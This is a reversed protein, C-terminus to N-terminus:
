PVAPALSPRCPLPAVSSPPRFFFDFTLLDLTSLRTRRPQPRAHPQLYDSSKVVLCVFYVFAAPRLVSAPLGSITLGFPQGRLAASHTASGPARPTPPLGGCRRIDSPRFDFTSHPAAPAACPPSPRNFCDFAQLDLVLPQNRKVMLVRIKPCPDSPYDRIHWAWDTGM